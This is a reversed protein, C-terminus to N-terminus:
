RVVSVQILRNDIESVVIAIDLFQQIVEMNTRLHNMMKGTTFSGAGALAMPLLVQDALHEGLVADPQKQYEKVDRVVRGAVREASLGHVGYETFRESVHEYDLHVAFYNGAGAVGKIQKLEEQYESWGLRKAAHQVERTMIEGSLNAVAATLTRGVLAGKDLFEVGHLSSPCITATISGGGAPAFGVKDCVLEAEVGLKRVVPLFVETIYDASPALPNHTGGNIKVESVGDASMLAPLLTQFVLTTSGATGISFTYDGARVEQPAFVLETSGLEAGDVAAGSVEVAAQVCTLHQRMLGPKKREGRINVMRFPKGTVMSLSLASRLVQGGGDKGDIELM